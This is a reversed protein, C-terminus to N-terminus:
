PSCCSSSATRSRRSDPPSATRPAREHWRGCSRRGSPGRPLRGLRLVERGRAPRANRRRGQGLALVKSDNLRNWDWANLRDPDVVAYALKSKYRIRYRVWKASRRCTATSSPGTKSSWGRRRATRGNAPTASSRRTTAISGEDDDQSRRRSPARRTRGCSSATRTPSRRATATSSARTATPKAARKASVVQWDLRSTGSSSTAGTPRSTAARSASSCTSSTRPTRTASRGSRSTPGSPARSPARRRPREEAAGHLPRGEPLLQRRLLQRSAFCWACRDIPDLNPLSAYEAHASRSRTSASAARSAPRRRAPGYALAM